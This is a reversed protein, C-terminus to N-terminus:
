AGASSRWSGSEYGPVLGASHRRGGSDPPDGRTAVRKATDCRGAARPVDRGSAWRGVAKPDRIGAIAAVRRQGFLEQLAAATAAIPQRTVRAHVQRQLDAVSELMPEIWWSTSACKRDSLLLRWGNGPVFGPHAHVAGAFDCRPAIGPACTPRSHH